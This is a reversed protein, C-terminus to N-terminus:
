IKHTSKAKILVRPISVNHSDDAVSSENTPDILSSLVEFNGVVEAFLFAEGNFVISVFKSESLNHRTEVNSSRDLVVFMRHQHFLPVSPFIENELVSSPIRISDLALVIGVQGEISVM